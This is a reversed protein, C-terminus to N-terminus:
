YDYNLALYRVSRVTFVFRYTRKHLIWLRFKSLFTSAHKGQTFCFNQLQKSKKRREKEIVFLFILNNVISDTKGNLFAKFSLHFHFTPFHSRYEGKHDNECSTVADVNPVFCHFPRWTPTGSFKRHPNFEKRM